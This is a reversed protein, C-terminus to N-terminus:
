FTFKSRIDIDLSLDSIIDHAKGVSPNTSIVTETKQCPRAHHYSVM